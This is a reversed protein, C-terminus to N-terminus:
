GRLVEPMVVLLQAPTQAADIAPDNTVDRLAQKKAAIAHKDKRNQTEDARMYDNDLQELIPARLKRLRARHIERARPMDVDPKGNGATDRWAARFTRDTQEDVYENPVFRWSVPALGGVWHGDAVYKAILSDVYATTPDYHKRLRRQGPQAPDPEYENVVVRLVTVGGDVRTVAVTVVDPQRLDSM